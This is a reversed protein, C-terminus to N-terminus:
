ELLEDLQIEVVESHGDSKKTEEQQTRDLQEQHQKDDLTVERADHTNVEGGSVEENIAPADKVAFYREFGVGAVVVSGSGIVLQKPTISTVKAYIRKFIGVKEEETQNTKKKIFADIIEKFKLAPKELFKKYAVDLKTASVTERIFVKNTIRYVGYTTPKLEAKALLANMRNLELILEEHPNATNKIGYEFERQTITLMDNLAAQRVIRDKIKGNKFIGGDLAKIEGKLKAILANKDKDSKRLTLIEETFVGNRKIVLKIDQVDQTQKFKKLIKLNYQLSIREELLDDIDKQYSEFKKMWGTVVELNKSAEPAPTVDATVMSNITSFYRKAETVVEEDSFIYFAPYKNNNWNKLSRNLAARARNIWDMKPHQVTVFKNSFKLLKKDILAQNLDEKYNDKMFLSKALDQCSGAAEAPMREYQSKEQMNSCSALIFLLTFLHLKRLIM